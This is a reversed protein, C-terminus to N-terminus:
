YVRGMGGEGLSDLIEYPGLKTGVPIQDVPEASGAVVEWIPQAVLDNSAGSQALLDGLLRRLVDDGECAKALFAHRHEPARELASHYLKEVRRLRESDM